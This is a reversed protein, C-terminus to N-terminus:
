DGSILLRMEEPTFVANGETKKGKATRPSGSSVVPSPPDEEDGTEKKAAPKAAPKATAASEEAPKSEENLTIGLASASKKIRDMESKVHFGVRFTTDFALLAVIDENTYTWRKSLADYMAKADPSKKKLAEEYQRIARTWEGRPMFTKGDRLRQEGGKEAFLKGQEEIFEAIERHTQDNEDFDKAGEQIKVFETALLSGRKLEEGMLPAITPYKEEFKKWGLENAEKAFRTVHKNESKELMNSVSGNFEQLAKAIKPESKLARNEKRLDDIKKDYDGRVMEVARKAVKDEHVRRIDRKSIEKPRLKAVAQMFEEDNEDFTRTPDEKQNREIYETISQKFKKTADAIGKYKEPDLEEAAKALEYQEIEDDSWGDFEDVPPKEEPKEEPKQEAKAESQKRFAAEVSQEVVKQIPPAKTVKLEPQKEEAKEDGEDDKEDKEDKEDQDGAEKKGKAEAEAQEILATVPDSDFPPKPLVTEAAEGEGDEGDEEEPEKKPNPTDDKVKPDTAFGLDEAIIDLWSSDEAAPKDETTTTTTDAM